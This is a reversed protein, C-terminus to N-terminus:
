DVVDTTTTLENHVTHVTVRGSNAPWWALDETIFDSDQATERLGIFTLDCFHIDLAQNVDHKTGAAM